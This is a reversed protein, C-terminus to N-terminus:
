VIAIKLVFAEVQRFDDFISSPRWLIVSISSTRRLNGFIKVALHTINALMAPRVIAAKDYKSARPEVPASVRSLLLSLSRQRHCACFHRSLFRGENLVENKARSISLFLQM